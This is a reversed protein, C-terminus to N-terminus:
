IVCHRCCKTTSSHTQFMTKKSRASVLMAAMRRLIIRTNSGAILISGEFGRNGSIEIPSYVIDDGKLCPAHCKREPIEGNAYERELYDNCRGGELSPVPNVYSINLSKMIEIIKDQINDKYTIEFLPINHLFCYERKMVDTVERQQKGFGLPKDVFHQVGQYEILGAVADNSDFLAFDFRVPRGKNTRLDDYWYQTSYKVGFKNLVQRTEYEGKSIMCGCSSVSGRVLDHGKVTVQTGCECICKWQSYKAGNEGIFTGNRQIVTLKGFRRGELHHSQRESTLENRRCGCSQATGNKLLEPRVTTMNGCDCQCLWGPAHKGNKTLNDPNWEIVVLRGFRQGTLDKALADHVAEKHLCGCSKTLGKKLSYGLVSKTGECECQCVWYNARNFDEHIVTLRGFKQGTLDEREKYGCGCTKKHGSRLEAASMIIENGCACKCRWKEFERGRKNIFIERDIVTLYGFVQDIMNEKIFGEM